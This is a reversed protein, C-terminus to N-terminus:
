AHQKGKTPNWGIIEQVQEWSVDEEPPKKKRLSAEKCNWENTRSGSPFGNILIAYDKRDGKVVIGVQTITCESGAAEGGVM